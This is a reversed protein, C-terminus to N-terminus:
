PTVITRRLADVGEGTRASVVLAGDAGLARQLTQLRGHRRNKAVGDIKTLVLLFSKGHALLWRAVNVDLPSPPDLRADVLLLVLQLEPRAELYALVSQEMEGRRQGSAKAYGYGPLDVVNIGPRFSFLNLAQTRGPQKSTRVLGRKGLLANLLSSKGVNSRGLVAVEGTGSPLDSPAAGSALFSAM